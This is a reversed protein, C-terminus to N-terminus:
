EVVKRIYPLKKILWISGLSLFFILVISIPLYLLPHISYYVREQTFLLIWVAHILYIGFLYPQVNVLLKSLRTWDHYKFWVFLATSMLIYFPMYSNFLSWHYIKLVMNFGVVLVAALLALFYLFRRKSHKITITALYYGLVFYGCYGIVFNMYMADFIKDLYHVSELISFVFWLVLFYRMNDNSEVVKKLLPIVLYISMLMPLYWLHSHPTLFGITWVEHTFRGLCVNLCAYFGWWFFYPVALRPFLKRFVDNISVSKDPNLFIAGSIMVFIPVAWHSLKNFVSYIFLKSINLLDGGWEMVSADSAWSSRNGPSSMHIAIVAFTAILRLADLYLVRQSRNVMCTM